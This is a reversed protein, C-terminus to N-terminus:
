DETDHASHDVEQTAAGRAEVNFVVEAEGATEFTLTAPIKDGAEFPDGNLGMFMVHFGGPQFAVTEGAPIEIADVSFMRMVGDANETGHLSVKPFDATIGVLRDDSSGTNTVTLYGAGSMASQATAFAMPHDIILDGLRFEHALPPTATTLLIACLPLSFRKM